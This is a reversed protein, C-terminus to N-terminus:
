EDVSFISAPCAFRPRIDVSSCPTVIWFIKRKTTVPTLVEPGVEVRIEFYHSTHIPNILSGAPNLPPSSHVKPEM